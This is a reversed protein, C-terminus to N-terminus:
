MLNVCQVMVVVVVEDLQSQDDDLQVSVTAGSVTVEKAKYGISSVVLVDGAKADLTFNGLADSQTGKSTGKVAINVGSIPKGTADLVKGKVQQQV